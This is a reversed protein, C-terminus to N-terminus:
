VARRDLASWGPPPDNCFAQTLSRRALAALRAEREALARPSVRQVVEGAGNANPTARGHRVAPLRPAPMGENNFKDVVSGAPRGIAEGIAVADAGAHHM